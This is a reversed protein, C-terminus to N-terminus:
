LRYSFCIDYLYMHAQKDQIILIDNSLIQMKYGYMVLIDTM